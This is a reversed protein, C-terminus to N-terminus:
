IRFLLVFFPYSFHYCRLLLKGDNGADKEEGNEDNEYSKMRKNVKRQKFGVETNKAALIEGPGAEVGEPVVKV